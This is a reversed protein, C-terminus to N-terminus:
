FQFVTVFVFLFCLITRLRRWLVSRSFPQQKTAAMTSPCAMCKQVFVICPCLCVYLSACLTIGMQCHSGWTCVAFDFCLVPQQRSGFLKQGLAEGILEHVDVVASEHGPLKCQARDIKLVAAVDVVSVTAQVLVDHSRLWWKQHHPSWM